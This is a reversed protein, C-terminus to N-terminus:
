RGVLRLPPSLPEGDEGSSGTALAELEADSLGDLADPAPAQAVEALQRLLDCELRHLSAVTTWAKGSARCAERDQRVEILKLRLAERPDGELLLKHTIKKTRAM